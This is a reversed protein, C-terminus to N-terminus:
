EMNNTYIYFPEMNDLDIIVLRQDKGKEYVVLWRQPSLLVHNVVVYGKPIERLNICPM